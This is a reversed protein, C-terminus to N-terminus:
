QGAVQLPHVDCLQVWLGQSVNLFEGAAEGLDAAAYPSVFSTATGLLGAPCSPGGAPVDPVRVGGRGKLSITQKLTCSWLLSRHEEPLVPSAPVSSGWRNICSLEERRGARRRGGAAERRWATSVDQGEQVIRRGARLAAAGAERLWMREAKGGEMSTAQLFRRSGRVWCGGHGANRHQKLGPAKPESFHPGPGHSSSRISPPATCCLSAQGAPVCCACRGPGAEERPPGLHGKLIEQGGQGTTKGLSVM